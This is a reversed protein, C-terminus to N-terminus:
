FDTEFCKDKSKDGGDDLMDPGVSYIIRKEPLYRLPQGNYPDSPVRELFEPVLADLSRPLAGTKQKHYRLAVLTKMGAMDARFECDYEQVRYVARVFDAYLLQGVLNRRLLARTNDALSMQRFPDDGIMEIDIISPQRFASVDPLDPQVRDAYERSLNAICVRYGEALKRRSENVKVSYGTVPIDVGGYLPWSRVKPLELLARDMFEFETKIAREHSERDLVAADLIGVVEGHRFADENGIGPLHLLANAAIKKFAAGVILGAMGLGSGEIQKGAKVLASVEDLAEKHKGDVALKHARVAMLRAAVRLTSLGSLATFRLDLPPAQASECALAKRFDDLVAANKELLENALADDWPLIGDAMDYWRTEPMKSDYPDFLKQSGAQQYYTFANENDPIAIRVPMLDRVDPPRDDSCLLGVGMTCTALLAAIASAFGRTGKRRSALNHARM